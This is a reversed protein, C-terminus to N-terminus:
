VPGNGIDKLVEFHEMLLMTEELTAVMGPLLSYPVEDLINQVRNLNEVYGPQLVAYLRRDPHGAIVRRGIQSDEIKRRFKDIFEEDHDSLSDIFRRARERGDVPLAAVDPKGPKKEGRAKIEMSLSEIHAIRGMIYINVRMVLLQLRAACLKVLYVPIKAATFIYTKVAKKNM